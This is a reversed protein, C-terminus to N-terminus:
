SGPTRQAVGPRYRSQKQCLTAQQSIYCAEPKPGNFVLDSIHKWPIHSHWLHKFHKLYLPPLAQRAIHESLAPNFTMYWSRIKLQSSSFFSIPQAHPAYPHPSLPTYPRATSVPLFSPSWQHSRPTSPHIINPHIEQLHSTPIHVLNPQGLISVTPPRKQTRYHVKPNQSIRPIEQSAAFWNAEWSPNQVMYCTLLNISEWGSSTLSPNRLKWEWTTKM